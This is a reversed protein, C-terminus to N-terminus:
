ALVDLLHEPQVGALSIILCHRFAAGREVDADVATNVLEIVGGPALLQTEDRARRAPRDRALNRRLPGLRAEVVHMKLNPAGARQGRHRLELRYEDTTDGDGAGRQVVHVLDLALVHADAILDDHAAGAVDDGFDHARDAVLALWSLRPGDLQGGGTGHAAGCDLAHGIFRHRAAGAAQDAGRLPAFRELMEGRAIGHVDVAEAAALDLLENAFAQQLCRDVDVPELLMALFQLLAGAVALFGNGVQEVGDFGALVRRECAEDEGEADAFYPLGHGLIQGLVEARQRCQAFGGAVVAAQLLLDFLLFMGAGGGARAAECLVGHLGYGIDARAKGGRKGIEEALLAVALHDLLEHFGAYMPWLRFGAGLLLRQGALGEDEGALELIEGTVLGLLVDFGAAPADGATDGALGVVDNGAGLGAALAVLGLLQTHRYQIFGGELLQQFVRRCFVASSASRCPM